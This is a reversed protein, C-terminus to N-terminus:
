ADPKNTPTLTTMKTYKDHSFTYSLQTNQSVLVLNNKQKILQFVLEHGDSSTLTIKEGSTQQPQSSVSIARAFRWEDLLMQVADSSLEDSPRQKNLWSGDAKQQLHLAPTQLGVIQINNAILRTDIYSDLHATLLHLFTDDLLYVHQDDSVYRRANVSETKGISLTKNNFKLRVIPKDLGFSSLVSPELPYSVPPTIQSIKLLREVKGLLAPAQIPQTLQWQDKLLILQIAELQKTEISISHIAAMDFPTLRAMDTSDQGPKLWAILGLATIVLLLLANIILRSKM